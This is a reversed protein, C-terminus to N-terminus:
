GFTNELSYTIRLLGDESQYRDYVEQMTLHASVIHSAGVFLFIGQHPQLQPLLRRVVHTMAGMSHDCPVLFKQQLTDPLPVCTDKAKVLLVPIRDPYKSRLHRLKKADLPNIQMMYLATDPTRRDM